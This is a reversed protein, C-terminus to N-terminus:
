SNENGVSQAEKKSFHNGFLVYIFLMAAGCCVFIDAINFVAFNVFRLEFFDIVRHIRLRDIFNGLGGGILFLLSTSLWRSMNRSKVLIVAMVIIVAATVILFFTRQDRMIGFAAGTNEVFTLHLVGPIVEVSGLPKLYQVAMYKTFQDIAVMAIILLISVLM